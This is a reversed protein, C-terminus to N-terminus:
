PVPAFGEIARGDAQELDVGLVRTWTPALDLVSIPRSFAGRSVAPGAAILLGPSRHEGTRGYTNAGELVGIKPSSIQVTAGKGDGVQTSGTAIADNYDVVLDPLDTLRPGRYHHSVRMVRRIFPQGTREDVIALLDDTLARCFDDAQRGPTLTGQPERGALNLRIDGVALGHRQHFCQSRALDVDLSPFDVDEVVGPGYRERLGRLRRRLSDPLWHWAWTGAAVALSAADLSRGTPQPRHAVGLRFLIDPLLFHAGYWHSMGHSSFVFTLCDGAEELVQGIATDVSQYVRQVPNGVATAIAAAHAPHSADHLHWCQHGVCHAESFVQMFLDWGGERLFSRTM